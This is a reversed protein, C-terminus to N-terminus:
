YPGYIEPFEGRSLPIREGKPWVPRLNRGSGGRYVGRNPIFIQTFSCYVRQGVSCDPIASTSNRHQLAVNRRLSMLWNALWDNAPQLGTVAARIKVPTEASVPCSTTQMRVANTTSRDAQNESQMPIM